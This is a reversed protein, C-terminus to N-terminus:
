EEVVPFFVLPRRQTEQYVLYLGSLVLILVGLIVFMDPLDGWVIYGILAGFIFILYDIPGIIAAPALSFARTVSIVACGGVLGLTAFLGWDWLSPTQWYFPIFLTSMCFCTSTFWITISFDSETQSLKRSMVLALAYVVGAILASLGGLSLVASGPRMMILVGLFGMCIAIWAHKEVKEGLIPIAFIAMFLPAIYAVAYADALPLNAFAYIYFPVALAGIVARLAHYKKKNSKLTKWAKKQFALGLLLFCVFFSRCFIIQMPHYTGALWKLLADNISFLIVSLLMFVMGRYIPYSLM